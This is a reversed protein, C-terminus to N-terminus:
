KENKFETEKIKQILEETTVYNKNKYDERSAKIMEGISPPDYVDDQITRNEESQLIIKWDVTKTSTPIPM